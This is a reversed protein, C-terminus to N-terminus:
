TRQGSSGADRRTKVVSVLVTIAMIAAIVGLSVWNGIEAWDAVWGYEHSAHLVLKVGLFGLIGALGFSLYEVKNLLGSLLFYLQRLGMLAFANAAFVLLPDRTIGFIAPISDVAFFVDASGLAVIVVFMPTLFWKGDIRMLARTGHFDPTVRFMRHVLRILRNDRYEEAVPEKERLLGVAAWILVTGFLFFAWEFYKILFAGGAIFGGRLVLALLVGIVLAPKQCRAPVRLSSMIVMFVFLNDVSLSYETFYGTFYQVAFESGGFWWVGVGFLVACLVSFGVWCSTERPSAWRGRGGVLLDVVLLFGVCGVTALWLWWPVPMVDAAEALVRM